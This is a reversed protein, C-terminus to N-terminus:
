ALARRRRRIALAVAVIVFLAALNILVIVYRRKPPTVPTTTGTVVTTGAIRDSVITRPPIRLNFAASDLPQNVSHLTVNWAYREFTQRADGQPFYWLEDVGGVLFAAGGVQAIRTERREKHQRGKTDLGIAKVILCGAAPDLWMTTVAGPYDQSLLKVELLTRAAGGEAVDRRRIRGAFQLAYPLPWDVFAYGYRLDKRPNSEINMGGLINANRDTSSYSTTSDGDFVTDSRYPRVRGTKRHVLTTEFQQRWRVGDFLIRRDLQRHELVAGGSAFRSDEAEVMTADFSGIRALNAAIGDEILSRLARTEADQVIPERAKPAEAGAWGPGAVLAIGLAVCRAATTPRLSTM